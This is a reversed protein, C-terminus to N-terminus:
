VMYAEDKNAESNCCCQCTCFSYCAALMRLISALCSTLCSRISLCWRWLATKVIEMQRAIWSAWSNSELGRWIKEVREIGTTSRRRFSLDKFAQGANRRRNENYLKWDELASNLDRPFRFDRGGKAQEPWDVSIPILPKGMANAVCLEVLVWPRELVERTLLLLHTSSQEVSSLLENLNALNASDLFIFDTPACKRVLQYQVDKM